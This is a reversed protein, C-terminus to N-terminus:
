ESLIHSLEFKPAKCLVISLLCNSKLTVVALKVVPTPEWIAADCLWLEPVPRFTTVTTDVASANVVCGDGVVWKTSVLKVVRATTFACSALPLRSRSKVPTPFFTVSVLAAPTAIFGPLVVDMVSVGTAPTMSKLVSRGLRCYVSALAPDNLPVSVSVPPPM